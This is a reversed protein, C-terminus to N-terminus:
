AIPRRRDDAKGTFLALTLGDLLAGPDIGLAVAMRVLSHISPMARGNEYARINSLDIGSGAALRDQTIAIQRRREAILRGIHAAADSTVRSM